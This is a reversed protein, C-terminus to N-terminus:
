TEFDALMSLLNHQQDEIAEVSEIGMFKAIEGFLQLGADARLLIMAFVNPMAPNLFFAWQIPSAGSRVVACRAGQGIGEFQLIARVREISLVSRESCVLIRGNLIEDKQAEKCWIWSEVSRFVLIDLSSSSDHLAQCVDEAPMVGWLDIQKFDERCPGHLPWPEQGERIYTALHIRASDGNTAFGFMVAEDNPRAGALQEQLSRATLTAKAEFRAVAADYDDAPLIAPLPGGPGDLLGAPIDRDRPVYGAERWADLLLDANAKVATIDIEAPEGMLASFRSIIQDLEPANRELLLMESLAWIEGTSLLRSLLREYRCHPSQWTLYSEFAAITLKRPDRFEILCDSSMSWATICTVLVDYAWIIKGYPLHIPLHCAISDYVERYPPDHPLRAISNQLSKPYTEAVVAMEAYTAGLEQVSWQEEASICYAERITSSHDSFAELCQHFLGASTNITLNQHVREHKLTALPADNELHVPDFIIPYHGPQFVGLISLGQKRFSFVGSYESGSRFRPLVFQVPQGTASSNAIM